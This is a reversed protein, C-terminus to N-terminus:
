VSVDRGDAVDDRTLRFLDFWQDALVLPNELQTHAHFTEASKVLGMGDVGM